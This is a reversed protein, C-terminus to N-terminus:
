TYQKATELIQEQYDILDIPQNFEITTREKDNPGNNLVIYNRNENFYARLIWKRISDDILINFYSRNDRYFVRDPSIVDKLIVKVVSYTELEEITTVITNTEEHEKENEKENESPTVEKSDPLTINIKNDGTSKLAANLKDNVKENIIQKLGKSIIPTFKEITNKTKVGDYIQNVLYRIFDESPNEFQESLYTKLANLYKLESAASAINDVDFTEKRFKAIEQVQSDRLEHINFVFFPTTDMKNTEELDTFFKYEVGNTLIGFKASTTGFYRFLQSDHKTLKESISKCEILIIPEGDMLIAYDVKEGKKIGVDATFEPCFELPNFVDYGLLQFFPMVIATKTAEETAISDRLTGIRKALSKLQETFQEM